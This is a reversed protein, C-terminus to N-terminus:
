LIIKLYFFMVPASFFLSDFLDLVGGIGPLLTGSDKVQADRKILSEILDGVMGSIGLLIGLGIVAIVSMFKLMCLRFLMALLVSSVIGAIAGEVTKKASIRPILKHKGFKRGFLYAGVDCIKTICFLSVIIGAGNVIGPIYRLKIIFTFLYAVYVLGLIAVSCDGIVSSGNKRFAHKILLTIIAFSLVSEIYLNAYEPGKYVIAYYCSVVVLVGMSISYIKFPRYGKKEILNYFEYLGMGIFSAIVVAVIPRPFWYLTGILLFFLGLSSLFRKYLM